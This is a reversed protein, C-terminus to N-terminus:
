RSKSDQNGASDSLNSLYRNVPRDDDLSMHHYRRPVLYFSKEVREGGRGAKGGEEDLRRQGKQAIM